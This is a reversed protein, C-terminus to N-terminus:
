DSFYAKVIESTIWAVVLWVLFTLFIHTYTGILLGSVSILTAIIFTAGVFEAEREIQNGVVYGVFTGFAIQVIYILIIM